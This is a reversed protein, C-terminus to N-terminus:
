HPIRTAAIADAHERIYARLLVVAKCNTSEQHFRRDLSAFDGPREIPNGPIIGAASATTQAEDVVDAITPAGIATYAAAIESLTPVQPGSRSLLAAFGDFVSPAGPGNDSETWALVYIHQVPKPWARWRTRLEPPIEALKWRLDATALAIVQTDPTARIEDATLSQPATPLENRPWNLWVSALTLIVLAGITWRRKM